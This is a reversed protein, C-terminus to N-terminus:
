KRNCYKFIVEVKLEENDEIDKLSKVDYELEELSKLMENKKLAEKNVKVWESSTSPMKDDKELKYFRYVTAKTSEDKFFPSIM